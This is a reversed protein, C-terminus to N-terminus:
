EYTLQREQFNGSTHHVVADLVGVHLDDGLGVGEQAFPRPAVGASIASM